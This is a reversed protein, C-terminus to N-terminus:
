GLTLIRVLRPQEKTNYDSCYYDADNVAKALDNLAQDVRARRAKEEEESVATKSDVAGQGGVPAVLADPAKEQEEQEHAKGGQKEGRTGDADAAVESDPAVIKCFAQRRIDVPCRLLVGVDHNCRPGGYMSPNSKTVFPHTQESQAEGVNPPVCDIPPQESMNEPGWRPILRKGHFRKWLFKGARPVWAWFWYMM